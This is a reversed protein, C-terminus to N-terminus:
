TLSSKYSAPALQVARVDREAVTDAQQGALDQMPRQRQRARARVGRAKRATRCAVGHLWGALLEPRRISGAKRALVLFTAQFADEADHGDTLLRQCVGLVMPGHRRVLVTFAAGDQRVVFRELLQGDSLGGASRQLHALVQRYGTPM